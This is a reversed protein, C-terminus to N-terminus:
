ADDATRRPNDCPQIRFGGLRRTEASFRESLRGPHLAAHVVNERGLALSLEAGTLIENRPIGAATRDLKSKGDPRADSAHLLVAVRGALLAERVKEFGTTIEGAKRSLGLLDMARRVLLDEIQDALADPVVIPGSVGARSFARKFHHRAAAEEIRAREAEVWVGRGPLRRALDPTVTGDPAVVFRVLTAPDARAGTVISRRTNPDEIDSAAPLDAQPAADPTPTAIPKIRRRTM